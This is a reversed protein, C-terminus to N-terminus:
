LNSGLMSVEDVVLLTLKGYKQRLEDRITPTLAEDRAESGPQMRFANHVTTGEIARAALASTATVQVHLDNNHIGMERAWATVRESLSRILHTQGLPTLLPLCIITGKGDWGCWYRILSTSATARSARPTDVCAQQLRQYKQETAGM